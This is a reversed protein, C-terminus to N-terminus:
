QNVQKPNVQKAVRNLLDESGIKGM